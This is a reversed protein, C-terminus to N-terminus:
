GSVSLPEELSTLEEYKSGDASIMTVVDIKLPFKTLSLPVPKIYYIKGKTNNVGETTGSIGM